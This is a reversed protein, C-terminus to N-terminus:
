SDRLGDHSLWEFIQQGATTAHSSRFFLVLELAASGLSSELSLLRGQLLEKEIMNGALWAVGMGALCMEKLSASFASECIVEIRYDRMTSPLCSTALLEGFFGQQHYMLLPILNGSQPQNNAWGQALEPTCVPILLDKDLEFKDVSYRSFDFRRQVTEYCLLFEAGKLFLAECENNDAPLVRYSTDPLQQKIRSILAPFTSIALTHQAIFTVPNRLETEALALHRLGYVRNLLDVIGDELAFAAPLLGIPKTSRDVIPVGLWEELLRIRRSFAPQTVHQRVAARTFSKEELLVILDELWKVEM